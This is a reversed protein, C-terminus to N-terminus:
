LTVYPYDSYSTLTLSVWSSIDQNFATAGYFMGFM